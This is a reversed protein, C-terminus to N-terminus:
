NTDKTCGATSNQNVRVVRQLLLESLCLKSQMLCRSLTLLWSTVVSLVSCRFVRSSTSVLDSSLPPHVSVHSFVFALDLMKATEVKFLHSLVDRRTQLKNSCVRTDKHPNTPEDAPNCMFSSFLNGHFKSPLCTM